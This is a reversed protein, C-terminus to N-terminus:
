KIQKELWSAVKDFCKADQHDIDGSGLSTLESAHSKLEDILFQRSWRAGMQFILPKAYQQYVYRDYACIDNKKLAEEFSKSM